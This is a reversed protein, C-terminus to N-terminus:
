AALKRCTIKRGDLDLRPTEHSTCVPLTWDIM